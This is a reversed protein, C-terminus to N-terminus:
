RKTALHNNMKRYQSPSIKFKKKFSIIFNTTSSYNLKESISSISNLPDQLLTLAYSFKATTVYQNLTTGIFKKFERCVYGHSYNTSAVIETINKNIFEETNIDSILKLIWTPCDIRLKSYKSQEWLNLIDTIINLHATRLAHEPLESDKNFSFLKNELYQLDYDSINFFVSLPVNSLTNFLTDDILDCVIKLTAPDIYIDRSVHNKECSFSHVDNPRLLIATGKKMYYEKGNITNVLSGNICIALEFFKHSHLPCRKSIVLKTFPSTQIEDYDLIKM